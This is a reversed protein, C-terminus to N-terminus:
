SEIAGSVGDIQLIQGTKYRQTAGPVGMVAPIGYERALLAGHSLLGGTETVLGALLPFVSTWGPDINEAVLIEGPEVSGLDALDVVVRAAGKASGRASGIGGEAGSSLAAGPDGEAIEGETEIGDFLFTAPLRDKWVRYHELREGVAKRVVLDPGAKEGAEVARFMEDADMFFIEFPDGLIGRGSLREGMELLLKRCHALLYDLHFRQNERYRTFVQTKEYVAKLFRARLPGLVGGGARALAEAEAEERRATAEAELSAPDAPSEDAHLQARVLGLIIEPTEGWRELSVERSASRHGYVRVFEDFAGWFGSAPFGDRLDDLEGGAACREALLKDERAFIGLKWIERNMEGTRTDPLGAVIQQYLEGSEDSAWAALLGRLLSHLMANHQGMGWRIVRFHEAGFDDIERLQALWEADTIAGYDQRLKPVIEDEIRRCHVALAAVNKGMPARPDKLNMLIMRVLDGPNFAVEGMREAWLPTFWGPASSARMQAPVGSLMSAVYRGSIYVYGNHRILPEQSLLDPRGQMQAMEVFLHETIWRGLLTHGLPTVYGSLYEDGFKRSWVNEPRAPPLGTMPRLQLLWLRGGEIAWECDQRPGIALDIDRALAWIEAIADSDLCLRRRRGAGVPREATGKPGARFESAKAGIREGLVEGSARGVVLHDPDVRGSVVGEGLGYAVDIVIESAFPRRPNATLMVGSVEPKVMRQIVLAMGGDAAAGRAERYAAAHGADYAARCAAVADLLGRASRVGLVTQYVGAASADAADEDTASSRVALSPNPEAKRLESWLARLSVELEKGAAADAPVSWADPVDFGAKMLRVLGAAKGGLRGRDPPTDATLKVIM